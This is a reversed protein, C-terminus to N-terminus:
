ITTVDEGKKGFTYNVLLEFTDFSEFRLDYEIVAGIKLQNIQIAPIFQILDSISERYGIGGTLILPNSKNPQYDVLFQVRNDSIIQVLNNFDDREFSAYLFPRFKLRDNLLIRASLTNKYLVRQRDETTIMIGTRCARENQPLSCDFTTRPSNSSIANLLPDELYDVSFGYNVNINNNIKIKYNIGIGFINNSNRFRATTFDNPNVSTFDLVPLEFKNVSRGYFIGFSLKQNKKKGFAAHYGLHITYDSISQSNRRPQDLLVNFGLGIWDNKRFGQINATELRVNYSNDDTIDPLNNTHIATLSITEKENGIYSPNFFSEQGDLQLISLSQAYTQLSLILCILIGFLRYIFLSNDM